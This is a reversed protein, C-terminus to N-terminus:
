LLSEILEGQGAPVRSWPLTEEEFGLAYDEFVVLHCLDTWYDQPRMGVAQWDLGLYTHWAESRMQEVEGYSDDARDALELGATHFGRYLALRHEEVLGPKDLRELREEIRRVVSFTRNKTIHHKVEVNRRFSGHYGSPDVPFAHWHGTRARRTLRFRPTEIMARTMARDEFWREGVKRRAKALLGREALVDPPALDAPGLGAEDLRGSLDSLHSLKSESGDRGGLHDRLEAVLHRELEALDGGHDAVAVACFWLDWHTWTRRAATRWPEPGFVPPRRPKTGRSM